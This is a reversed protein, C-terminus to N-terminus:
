GSLWKGLSWVQSKFSKYYYLTVSAFQKQTFMAESISMPTFPLSNGKRPMPQTIAISLACSNLM